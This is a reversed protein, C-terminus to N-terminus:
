KLITLTGTREPSEPTTRFIYYYTGSPVISGQYKGNWPKSYGTSEYIINGWQNFVHVTCEPFLYANRIVWTDNYGDGNPTFSNPINICDLDSKDVVASATEKCEYIDSVTVHYKGENLNKINEKTEDSSWIYSYAGSGGSVSSEIKGDKQANCSVPTSLLNIEIPPPEYLTISSFVECGQNDTVTVSYADAPLQKPNADNDGNSWSYSYDKTGGQVSTYIEGTSEGNCLIDEGELELELPEPQNLEASISAECGNSDTVAVMYQGAKANTMDQEVTSLAYDPSYWQYKYPTTGGNVRLDIEGDQGAFCSIDKSTFSLSLPQPENITITDIFKTENADTLTCTYDGAQLENLYDLKSGNSWQLEYPEVGGEPYLTIKGDS